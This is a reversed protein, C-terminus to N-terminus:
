FLPKAKFFFFFIGVARTVGSFVAQCDRCSESGPQQTITLLLHVSCSCRSSGTGEKMGAGELKKRCMLLHPAM